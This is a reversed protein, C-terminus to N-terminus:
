LRKRISLRIISTQKFGYEGIFSPSFLAVIRAMSTNIRTDFENEDSEFFRGNLSFILRNLDKLIVTNIAVVFFRPLSIKIESIKNAITFFFNM